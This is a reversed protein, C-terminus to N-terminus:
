KTLSGLQDRIQWLGELVTDLAERTMEFNVNRTVPEEGLSQPNDNVKLQVIVSPLNMRHMQDSASTIDVRWDIDQFRPLSIQTNVAQEKWKPMHHTIIKAILQKLKDNLDRPLYQMIDEAEMANFLAESVVIRTALLLKSAEEVTVSLLEALAKKEKDTFNENRRKYALVFIEEVSKQSSANLLLKLADM